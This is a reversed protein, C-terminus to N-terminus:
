LELVAQGSDEKGQNEIYQRIVSENVGVTSVFYGDSWIGDTRYYLQSLFPFKQKLERSTNTKILRIVDCVRMKPPISILLHIHDKDQNIVEYIIEPYWKRIERLKLELYAFIGKDIWEHRYKTTIVVHYECFYTAHAQKRFKM